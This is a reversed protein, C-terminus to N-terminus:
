WRVVVSRRGWQIARGCDRFWVDIRAGRIASGTDRARARGYGPVHLEAGLPIVAPDVAVTGPATPTGTATHGALCYATAVVRMLHIM